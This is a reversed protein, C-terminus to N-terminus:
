VMKSRCYFFVIKFMEKLTISYYLKFVIGLFLVTLAHKGSNSSFAKATFFQIQGPVRGFLLKLEENPSKLYNGLILPAM